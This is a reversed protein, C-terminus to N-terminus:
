EHERLKKHAAGLAEICQHQLTHKGQAVLLRRHLDESDKRQAQQAPLLLLM